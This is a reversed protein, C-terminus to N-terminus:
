ELKLIFEEVEESRADAFGKNEGYMDFGCKQLVRLSAINDKVVRAFMPRVQVQGLFEALARTAVGKGWCEKGIWYSVEPKCFEEDEYSSVSGAVQGNFLITKITITEDGLIRAWHAMFANRDTPDRATFAAMYNADPDLQQEFFISLDSEVVDRLQVDKTEPNSIHRTMCNEWTSTAAQRALFWGSRGAAGHGIVPACLSRM